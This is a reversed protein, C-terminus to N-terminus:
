EGENGTEPEDEKFVPIVMDLMLLDFIERAIGKLPQVLLTGGEASLRKQAIFIKGLGYSNLISVGNLDLIVTRRGSDFVRNFSKRFAEGAVEDDFDGSITIFGRDDDMKVKYDPEM